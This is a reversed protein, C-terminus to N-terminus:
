LQINSNWQVYHHIYTHIYKVNMQQFHFTEIHENFFSRKLTNTSVQFRIQPVLLFVYKQTSPFKLSKCQPSKRKTGLLFALGWLTVTYVSKHGWLMLLVWVCVCVILQLILWHTNSLSYISFCKVTLSTPRCSRLMTIFIWVTKTQTAAGRFMHWDTCEFCDQLAAAAGDTWVEVTKESPKVRKILQTYTPPLLPSIHDSHGFLPRPLAKYSGGINSYVLLLDM